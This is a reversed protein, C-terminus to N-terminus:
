KGCNSFRIAINEVNNEKFKEEDCCFSMQFMSLMKLLSPLLTIPTNINDATYEM